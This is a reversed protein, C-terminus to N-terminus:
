SAKMMSAVRLAETIKPDGPKNMGLRIREECWARIAAPAAHDRELLVFVLEDDHARNFCSNPNDREQRKQMVGVGKNLGAM